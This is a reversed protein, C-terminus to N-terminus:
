KTGELGDLRSPVNRAVFSRQYPRFTASRGWLMRLTVGVSCPTEGIAVAPIVPSTAEAKKCLAVAPKLGAFSSRRPM